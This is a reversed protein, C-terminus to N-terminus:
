KWLGYTDWEKEPIQAGIAYKFDLVKLRDPSTRCTFSFRYWHGGSRFAGGSGRMVDNKAEPESVAGVDARDPHYRNKDKDIRRMAEAGCVQELRTEPDLRRLMREFSSDRSFATGCFMLLTALVLGVLRM